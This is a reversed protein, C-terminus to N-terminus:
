ASSRKVRSRGRRTPTRTTPRSASTTRASRTSRRWATRTTPSAASSAAATTRRRRSPSRRRRAHGTRTTSGRHQRRARARVPDLRDPGRLVRAEAGPVARARGLVPLRRAVGDLQQVVAHHRDVAARRTVRGADEVVIRHAHVPRRARRRACRSCRIGTAPTSARSGSTRRSRASASRGPAAHPTARRGRRGRPRRGVASHPVAPDPARRLERVVRRDDLRQVARVCELGLEHDKGEMFTQGCFRPFTPFALSGDVGALALDDVRAKPEYCGPRMEDYTMAAIFMKRATSAARRRRRADRRAPDRRAAQARLHAPGRLGLLRGLPRGRDDGAQVVRRRRALLRGVAGARRAPGARADRAPLREQWLHPPEVVHDDVSIIKPLETVAAGETADRASRAPARLRLRRAQAHVHHLAPPDALRRRHPRYEDNYWGLRMAHTQQDIFVFHQMGTAGIATSSSSRCTASSSVAHRPRSCRRSASSRTRRASRTTSSTPRSCTSGGTRSSSARTRWTARACRTCSSSIPSGSRTRRWGDGM